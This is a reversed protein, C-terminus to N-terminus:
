NSRIHDLLRGPTAVVIDVGSRLAQEQPRMGVGGVVVAARIPTGKAFLEAEEVIQCALERTPALILVRTGRRPNEILHHLIPLLFAATKGSGTAACGLVDRGSLAAAIADAQISTPTTYGRSDISRLLSPHLGLKSFSM